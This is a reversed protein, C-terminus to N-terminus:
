GGLVLGIPVAGAIETGHAQDGIHGDTVARDAVNGRTQCDSVYKGRITACRAVPLTIANVVDSHIIDVSCFVVSRSNERHQCHGGINRDQLIDQDVMDGCKWWVCEQANTVVGGTQLHHVDRQVVADGGGSHIRNPGSSSGGVAGVVVLRQDGEVGAKIRIGKCM